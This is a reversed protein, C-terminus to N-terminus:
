RGAWPDVPIEPLRREIAHLREDVQRITLQEWEARFIRRATIDTSQNMGEGQEAFVKAQSM